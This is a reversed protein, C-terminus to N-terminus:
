AADYNEFAASKAAILGSIGSWSTASDAAGADTCPVILTPEAGLACAAAVLEATSPHITNNNMEAIVITESM